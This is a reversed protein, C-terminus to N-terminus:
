DAGLFLRDGAHAQLRVVDTQILKSEYFIGGPRAARKASVNMAGIRTVGIKGAPGSANLFQDRHEPEARSSKAIVQHRRHTEM